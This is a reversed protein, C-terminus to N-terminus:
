SGRSSEAAWIHAGEPLFKPYPVTQLQNDFREYVYINTALAGIKVLNEAIGGVIEPASCIRPAGSCNVKIGVVDTPSIFRRWADETRADGTLAQMGGALM